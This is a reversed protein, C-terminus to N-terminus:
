EGQRAEERAKREAARKEREIRRQEDRQWRRIDSLAGRAERRAYRLIELDSRLEDYALQLLKQAEQYKAPGQQFLAMGLRYARVPAAIELERLIGAAGSFDGALYLAWAMLEKGAISEPDDELAARAVNVLGSREEQASLSWGYALRLEPGLQEVPTDAVTEVVERPRDLHWWALAEAIRARLQLAPERAERVVSEAMHVARSHEGAGLLLEAQNTRGPMHDRDMRLLLEGWDVGRQFAALELSLRQLGHVVPVQEPALEYAEEFVAYAEARRGQQWYYDALLLRLDLDEPRLEIARQYHALADDHREVTAYHAALDLHAAVYTDDVALCSIWREVAQEMTADVMGTGIRVQIGQEAAHAIVMGSRYFLDADEPELKIAIDYERLAMVIDEPVPAEGRSGRHFYVSAITKHI